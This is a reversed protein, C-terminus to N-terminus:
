IVSTKLARLQGQVRRLQAVTCAIEASINTLRNIVPSRKRNPKWLLQLQKAKGLMDLTVKAAMEAGTGDYGPKLLVSKM